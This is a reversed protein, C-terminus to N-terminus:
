KMQVWVAKSPVGDNVLFL